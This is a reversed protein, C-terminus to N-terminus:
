INTENLLDNITQMTLDSSALQEACRKLEEVIIEQNKIEHKYKLSHELSAWCDMAITRLQVEAYIDNKRSKEGSRFLLIMHLSRYGNPKVNKIYDKKEIVEFNKDILKEVNEIGSLFDCVIRAGVIDHLESLVNKNSIEFGKRQMKELASEPSKIRIKFHEIPNRDGTGGANKYITNCFEELERYVELIDDYAQNYFDKDTM